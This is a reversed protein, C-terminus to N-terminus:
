VVGVGFVVAGVFDAGNDTVIDSVIDAVVEAVVEPNPDLDQVGMQDDIPENPAVVSDDVDM